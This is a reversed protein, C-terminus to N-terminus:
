RSRYPSQCPKYGGVEIKLKLLEIVKDRPGPLIPINKQQWPQQEIHPIKYPSFYTKKLTEQEKDTSPSLLKMRSSCM